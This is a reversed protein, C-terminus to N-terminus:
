FLLGRQLGTAISPYTTALFLVAGESEQAPFLFYFTGKTIQTQTSSTVVEAAGKGCRVETGRQLWDVSLTYDLSGRSAAWQLCKEERDRFGVAVKLNNNVTKLERCNRQVLLSFGLCDSARAPYALVVFM